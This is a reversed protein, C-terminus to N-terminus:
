LIKHTVAIYRYINQNHTYKPQQYYKVGLTTEKGANPTKQNGKAKIRETLFTQMEYPKCAYILVVM